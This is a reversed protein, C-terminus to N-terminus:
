EIEVVTQDTGGARVSCYKLFPFSPSSAHNTSLSKPQFKSLGHSLSRSVDNHKNIFNSFRKILNHTEALYLCRLSTSFSTTANGARTAAGRYDIELIGM